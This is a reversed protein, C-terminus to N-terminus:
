TAHGLEIAEYLKM